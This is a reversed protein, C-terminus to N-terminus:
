FIYLYSSPFCSSPVISHLQTLPGLGAEGSKSKKEGLTGLNKYLHGMGTSEPFKLYYWCKTAGPARHM